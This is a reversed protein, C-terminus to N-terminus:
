KDKIQKIHKCDGRRFNSAPCTCGWVGNRYTVNYQSKGNSSDVMINVERSSETPEGVVAKKRKITIDSIFEIDERHTGTPVKYWGPCVYTTGSLTVIGFDNIVTPHKIKIKNM